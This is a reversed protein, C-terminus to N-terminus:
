AEAEELPLFDMGKLKTATIHEYLEHNVIIHHYAAAGTSFWERTKFMPRSRDDKGKFPAHKGRSSQDYKVRGCKTCQHQVLNSVDLDVSAVQDIKLQVVTELEHGKGHHVVPMKDVGFPRFM